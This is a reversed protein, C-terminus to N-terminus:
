NGWGCLQGTGGEYCARRGYFDGCPLTPIGSYDMFMRNVAGTRYSERQKPLRTEDRIIENMKADEILQTFKQQCLNVISNHNGVVNCAIEIAMLVVLAETFIAAWKTSDEIRATYRIYVVDRNAYLKNGATEYETLEVMDSFDSINRCDREMNWDARRDKGIVAIVKLCDDPLVYTYQWGPVSESLLAPTETKRAFVWSYSQLLRDRVSDYCRRCASIEDEYRNDLVDPQETKMGKVLGIARNFIELKVPIRTETKIVGM